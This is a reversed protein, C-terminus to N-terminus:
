EETHEAPIDLEEELDAGPLDLEDMNTDLAEDALVARISLSIKRDEKNVNLVKVRVTEGVKVADEVKEIRNLACQSIHVLGDLGPELEVFAGFTTIRVVKGDVVSGVPYKEEVNEWPHPMTQKLGLSIRKNEPNLSLIKVMVKQDPKVVEKPSKIRGWSLDTIHILGDIGGLDVFAGFNTLRRVIGEVVEGEQLKNWAEEQQKEREEQLVLKRSAVLRKKQADLELIKVEFTQGVFQSLDEVYRLAIHSAPIFTRIGNIRATVGGKVVEKVTAEVYENNHFKEELKEWQKRNIINKQSLVVNGEGDNPKVVEVEIEDGLKVDKDALQSRAILGDSKVGINVCVEDDTIQVVTGKLVKGPHIRVMTAEMAAMFDSHVEDVPHESAPEEVQEATNVPESAEQKIEVEDQTLVDKNEMDTMHTVVEKLSWEPTSAGATIGVTETKIDAFGLPIEKAREVLITRSCLQKCTDYLKRTNSSNKGGVVIMADARSALERAAEQRKITATCITNMLDLCDVRTKLADCINEWLEKPFTTQAVALAKSIHPLQLAEEVSKVIYSKGMCWGITGIIEPHGADGVLIVPLGTESYEAVKQHLRSVFPCTLDFVKKGRNKLEQIVKPSVGHSRIIVCETDIDDIERAIIGQKELKAVVLSNHVLEGLSSIHKYKVALEQANNVARSVGTCFGAYRALEIPM